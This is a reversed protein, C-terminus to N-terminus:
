RPRQGALINAALQHYSKLLIQRLGNWYKHFGESDTDTGPHLFDSSWERVDIEEKEETWWMGPIWEFRLKKLSKVNQKLSTM